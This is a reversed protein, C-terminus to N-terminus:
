ARAPRRSGSFEASWRRPWTRSTGSSEPGGAPRSRGVRPASLVAGFSLLLGLVASGVLGSWRHAYLWDWALLGTGGVVFWLAVVFALVLPGNLRYRLLEGTGQNPVYGVVKRAPLILHLALILVYIIWPAFFGAVLSRM